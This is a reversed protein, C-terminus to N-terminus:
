KLFFPDKQNLQEKAKRACTEAISRDRQEEIALYVYRMCEQSQGATAFRIIAGLLKTGPMPAPDVMVVPGVFEGVVGGVAVSRKYQGILAREAEWNQKRQSAEVEYHACMKSYNTRYFSNLLEKFVVVEGTAFMHLMYRCLMKESEGQIMGIQLLGLYSAVVIKSNEIGYTKQDLPLATNGMYLKRIHAITEPSAHGVSKIDDLAANAALLDRILVTDVKKGLLEIKDFIKSELQKNSLSKVLNCAIKVSAIDIM